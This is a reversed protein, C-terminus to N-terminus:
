KGGGVAYSTIRWSADGPPIVTLVQKRSAFVLQGIGKKAAYITLRKICTEKEVNGV